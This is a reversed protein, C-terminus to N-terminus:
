WPMDYMNNIERKQKPSYERTVEAPTKPEHQGFYRKGFITGLDKDPNAYHLGGLWAATGELQGFDPNLVKITQGSIPDITDIFLSPIRAIDDIKALNLLAQTRKVEADSALAENQMAMNAIQMGTASVAQGMSDDAQLAVSPSNTQAGIAALPHIGARKADAVKWSIGHQAFEKNMAYNQANADKTSKSGMLGGLLNAGASLALGAGLSLAM